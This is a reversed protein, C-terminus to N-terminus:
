AQNLLQGALGRWGGNPRGIALRRELVSSFSSSTFCPATRAEGRFREHNRLGRESCAAPKAGTSLPVNTMVSRSTWGGFTHFRPCFLRAGPSTATRRVSCALSSKSASNYYLRPKSSVGVVKTQGHSSDCLRRCGWLFTIVTSIGCLVARSPVQRGSGRTARQCASSREFRNSMRCGVHKMRVRQKTQM